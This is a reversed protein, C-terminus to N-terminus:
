PRIQFLVAEPVDISLAAKQKTTFPVKINKKKKKKSIDKLKSIKCLTHM